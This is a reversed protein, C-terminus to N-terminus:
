LSIANKYLIKTDDPLSCMFDKKFFRGKQFETQKEPEDDWDILIIRHDKNNIYVAVVCGGRVEIVIDSSSKKNKLSSFIM